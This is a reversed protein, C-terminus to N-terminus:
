VVWSMDREPLNELAMRQSPENLGVALYRFADAPHSAWDHYPREYFVKRQDDWERRYQRLAKIGEAVRDRDFWCRPLIRRVANIGDEVSLKRVVTASIGLASLSEIRSKGTGLEKVQVDHPLFHQGWRYRKSQLVSAYHDFGYGAAAYYDILRIAQADQQYMWIVTHDGIGLDWATHVQLGPDYLNPVIRRQNEAAEMERGYYAGVIAATWSCEYEQLYQEPTMMQRASQLEALDVLGTRSARALLTFYEEPNAKAKLWLDHFDNEGKPTGIWTAWGKRDSLAPRIIETFLRPRMDAPEDLVVGDSYIGRLSDPNDAGHLRVQGGNPFDVRLESENAKAGPVVLAYRKLYDWVVSKAQKLLPAIYHYRPNELPSTLAHYILDNICAVTKGARRHVVLVAWRQRRQHYPMFLARPRYPVWIQEPV